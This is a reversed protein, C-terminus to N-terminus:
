KGESSRRQRRLATRFRTIANWRDAPGGCPRVKGANLLRVIARAESRTEVSTQTLRPDGANRNQIYWEYSDAWEVRVVGWKPKAM